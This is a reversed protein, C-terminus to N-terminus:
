REPAALAAVEIDIPFPSTARLVGHRDLDAVAGYTGEATLELALLWPELPDVIWYHRCGGRAYARRKHVLDHRRTTPSLVEVVLLPPALLGDDPHVATPDYVMLDPVLLTGDDIIWELGGPVVQLHPPCAQNLVITLHNVVVAHRPRPSGRVILVGDILEPHPPGEPLRDLDAVTLPRHTPLAAIAEALGPVIRLARPDIEHAVLPTPATM